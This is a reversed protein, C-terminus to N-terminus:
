RLSPHLAGRTPNPQEDQNPLIEEGDGGTAGGRLLVLEPLHPNRRRPSRAVAPDLVHLERSNDRDEDGRAPARGIRDPEPRYCREDRRNDRRRAGGGDM